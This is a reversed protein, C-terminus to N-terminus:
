LAAVGDFRGLEWGLWLAGLSDYAGLAALEWFGRKTMKRGNVVLVLAVVGALVIRMPVSAHLLQNRERPM